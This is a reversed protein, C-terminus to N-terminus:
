KKKKDAPPQEKEKEKEKAAPMVTPEETPSPGGGAWPPKGDGPNWPPEPDTADAPPAPGPTVPNHRNVDQGAPHQEDPIPRLEYPDPPWNPDRTPTPSM